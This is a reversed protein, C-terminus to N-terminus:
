ACLLHRRCSFIVKLINEGFHKAFLSMKCLNSCHLNHLFIILVNSKELFVGFIPSSRKYYCHCRQHRSMNKEEMSSKLEQEAYELIQLVLAVRAEDPTPEGVEELRGLGEEPGGEAEDGEGVELQRADLLEGPRFLIWLATRLNLELQSSKL